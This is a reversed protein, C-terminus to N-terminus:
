RTRLSSVISTSAEGSHSAGARSVINLFLRIVARARYGLLPLRALERASLKAPVAARQPSARVGHAPLAEAGSVDESRPAAQRRELSQLARLRHHRQGM